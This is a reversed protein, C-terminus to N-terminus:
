VAQKSSVWAKVDQWNWVTVKDTIKIPKPFNSADNRSLRWVTNKSISLEKAILSARKYEPQHDPQQTLAPSTPMIHVQITLIFAYGAM